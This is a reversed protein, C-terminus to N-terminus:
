QRSLQWESAVHSHQQFLYELIVSGRSALEIIPNRAIQVRDALFTQGLLWASTILRRLRKSRVQPSEQALFHDFRSWDPPNFSRPPPTLPFRRRSQGCAQEHKNRNRARNGRDM